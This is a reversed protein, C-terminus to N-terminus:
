LCLKIKQAMTMDLGNVTSIKVEPLFIKSHGKRLHICFYYIINVIISSKKPAETSKLRILERIKTKNSCTLLRFNKSLSSNNTSFLRIRSPHGILYFKESKLKVFTPRKILSTFFVKSNM